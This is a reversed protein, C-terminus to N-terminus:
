DIIVINVQYIINIILEKTFCDSFKDKIQSIKAKIQFIDNFSQNNKLNTNGNNMGSNLDILNLVVKECIDQFYNAYKGSSRFKINEKSLYKNKNLIEQNTFSDKKNNDNLYDNIIENMIAKKLDETQWKNLNILRNNQYFCDKNDDYYLYGDYTQYFGSPLYESINNDNLPAEDCNNESLSMKFDKIINQLVEDRIHNEVMNALSEYLSSSIGEKASKCTAEILDYLGYAKDITTNHEKDKALVRRIKFCNRFNIDHINDNLKKRAQEMIDKSEQINNAQTFLIIIPLKKIKYIEYCDKINNFEENTFRNGSKICYWICHIFEDPNKDEILKLITGKIEQTAEYMNYKGTEIGRTDYIRLGPINSSEYSTTTLTCVDGFGTEALGEKFIMNILTSKGAGTDGM